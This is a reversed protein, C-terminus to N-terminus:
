RNREKKRETMGVKESIFSASIASARAGYTAKTGQAQRLEYSGYLIGGGDCGDGGLEEDKVVAAAAAIMEAEIAASRILQTIIRTM